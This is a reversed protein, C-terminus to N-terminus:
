NYKDQMWQKIQLWFKYTFLPLAAFLLGLALYFHNNSMAIYGGIMLVYALVMM